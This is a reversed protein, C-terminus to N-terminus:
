QWWQVNTYDTVPRAGLGTIISNNKAHMASTNGAGSLNPICHGDSSMIPVVTVCQGVVNSDDTNFLEESVNISKLFLLLFMIKLSKTKIKM